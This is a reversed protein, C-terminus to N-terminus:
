KVPEKTAPKPYARDLADAIRDLAARDDKNHFANWLVCYLVLYFALVFGFGVGARVTPERDSM